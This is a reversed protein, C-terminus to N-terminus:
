RGQQEQHAGAPYTIIRAYPMVGQLRAQAARQSHDVLYKNLQNGIFRRHAAEAQSIQSQHEVVQQALQPQQSLQSSSLQPSAQPVSLSAVPQGSLAPEMAPNRQNMTQVGFVGIMAVSAAVAFGAVRRKWMDQNPLPDNSPKTPKPALIAPENELAQMVRSSLQLDMAPPTNRQLIDSMLHYREWRKRQAEDKQLATLAARQGIDDLEGDVLASIKEDLSDNM